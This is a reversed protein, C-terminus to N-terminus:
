AEGSIVVQVRKQPHYFLLQISKHSRIDGVKQSRLDTYIIPHFNESVKRLVVYRSSISSGFTSLVVFRFPHKKDLTARHIEHKVTEFVTTLEDKPSILM